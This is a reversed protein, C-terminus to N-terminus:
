VGVWECREVAGYETTLGKCIPFFWCDGYGM